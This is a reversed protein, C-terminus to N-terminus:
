TFNIGEQGVSNKKICKRDERAKEKRCLCIRCVYVEFGIRNQVVELWDTRYLMNSRIQQDLCHWTTKCLYKSANKMLVGFDWYQQSSFRINSRIEVLETLKVVSTMSYGIDITINGNKKSKLTTKWWFFFPCNRSFNWTFISALYEMVWTVRNWIIWGSRWIEGM